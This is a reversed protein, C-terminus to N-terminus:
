NRSRLNYNRKKEKGEQFIGSSLAMTSLLILYVPIPEVELKIRCLDCALGRSTGPLFYGSLKSLISTFNCTTGMSKKQWIEQSGRNGSVEQRSLCLVRVLVSKHVRLIVGLPAGPSTAAFAISAMVFCCIAGKAM